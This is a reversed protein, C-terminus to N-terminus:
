PELADDPADLPRGMPNPTCVLDRSLCVERIDQEYTVFAPANRHGTVHCDALSDGHISAAVTRRAAMSVMARNSDDLMIFWEHSDAGASREQAERWATAMATQGLRGALEAKEATDIRFWRYGAGTFIDPEGLATAVRHGRDRIGDRAMAIVESAAIAPDVREEGAALLAPNGELFAEIEGEDLGRDLAESVLRERAWADVSSRFAMRQAEERVLDFANEERSRTM